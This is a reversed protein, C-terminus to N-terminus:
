SPHGVKTIQVVGPKSSRARLNSGDDEYQGNDSLRIHSPTRERWQVAASLEHAVTPILWEKLLDM